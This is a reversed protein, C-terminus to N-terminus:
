TLKVQLVISIPKTSVGGAADLETGAVDAVNFTLNSTAVAPVAMYFDTTGDSGPEANIGVTTAVASLTVTKGDRRQNKLITELTDNAAGHLTGASSNGGLQGNDSSATYAPMTFSVLVLAFIGQKGVSERLWTIGNIDGFKTAM